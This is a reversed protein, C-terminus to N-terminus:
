YLVTFKTLRFHWPVWATTDNTKNPDDEDDEEDDLASANSRMALGSRAMSSRASPRYYLCCYLM